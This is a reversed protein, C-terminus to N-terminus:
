RTKRRVLLGGGFLLVGAGVAASAVVGSIPVGGTKPMPQQAAKAKGKGKQAVAPGAGAMVVMAMVIATAVLVVAMRRVPKAEKDLRKRARHIEGHRHVSFGKQSHLLFCTEAFEIESFGAVGQPQLGPLSLKALSLEERSLPCDLGARGPPCFFVFRYTYVYDFLAFPRSTRPRGWLFPFSGAWVSLWSVGM